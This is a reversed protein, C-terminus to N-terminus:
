LLKRYRYGKHLHKRYPIKNNSEYSSVRNRIRVLLIFIMPLHKPFTPIPTGIIEPWIDGLYRFTNDFEHLQYHKSPLWASRNLYFYLFLDAIHSSCSESILCTQIIYIYCFLICYQWYFIFGNIIDLYTLNIYKNRGLRLTFYKM